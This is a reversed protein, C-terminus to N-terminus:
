QLPLIHNSVFRTVKHMPAKTAKMFDRQYM